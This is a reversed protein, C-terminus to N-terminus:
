VMKKPDMVRDFDEESLFGLKKCAEKLTCNEKQATQAIIASKEYGIVPSLATVSMLSRNLNEAMKERNATIGCVCHANFSNVADSLISVSQLFSYACVPQCVNLEFNGQSASLSIATDNGVVRIAVMILAECQTPNVKGPMISSGPENAPITIEGLGCRPGSSLWRIDNAIKILDLALAKIAGHACVVANQSTLSRFFNDSVAFDTKTVARIEKEFQVTYGKPTNLGTGVATAGMALQKLGKAANIIQEKDSEIMSRWGSIEQSFRIPVADQLHTRGAKIVGANDDELKLFEKALGDIAPILKEYISMVAAVHMATPFTDNSSQSMNIDDNPHLLKEGALENGRNAIVENVNMNTQTGSGTQWLSLPFQGSLKGSLIEDCVRSIIKAKKATMREPILTNNALVAAKKICAFAYILEAPMKESGIKFNNLSRQTQAGWYADNPVEIEGLSDHEIRLEM